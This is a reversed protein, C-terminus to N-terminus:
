PSLRCVRGSKPRAPRRRRHSFRRFDIQNTLRIRVNPNPRAAYFLGYGGRLVTKEDFAYAFGFRPALNNKDKPQFSTDFGAALLAPNPNQIPPKAIMQYDYRLGLNLTLQPIM